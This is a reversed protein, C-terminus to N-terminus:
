ANLFIKQKNEQRFVTMKASITPFKTENIVFGESKDLKEASDARLEKGFLQIGANNKLASAEIEFDFIEFSSGHPRLIM